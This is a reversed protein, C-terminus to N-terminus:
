QVSPVAEGYAHHRIGQALSLFAVVDDVAELVKVAYWQGLKGGGGTGTLEEIIGPVACAQLQTGITDGRFCVNNDGHVAVTHLGGVM